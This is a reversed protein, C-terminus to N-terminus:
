DNGAIEWLFRSPELEKNYYEKVEYIHLHERARTMAVYFMRREEEIEEPKVAKKYPTMGENAELIFVADFELGKASHMTTVAVGRRERKALKIHQEFKERYKHIGDFWERFTKYQKAMEELEDLPEFLDEVNLHRYAAYERLYDDYGIAKRIFHVAAFPKLGALIKLEYEMQNINDVAWEKGAFAERLGEFRIVPETLLERTLYRNPKNLIRLFLARDRIGMAAQVYDLVHKVTFHDYVCPMKDQLRFPVNYEMLRNVIGRAQVNTRVIVAMQEYEMGCGHYEMIQGLVHSNEEALTKMHHIHVPEEYDRASVINKDFRTRNHSILLVAAKTINRSCRYNVDFVTTKADKYDDKFHLMIEPRAGRFGYISQDDDGVIFLNNEPLALMKTIEYQIKNIDQFEDVLIYQYRKQLKQLIDSREKLLEYCYVMMDDFDLKGMSTVAREYERYVERFVEEGLCGSYFNELSIMDGKMTGIEQIVSQILEEEDECECEKKRLIDRLLHYKEEEKLIDAPKYGYAAKLIHFFVSHFTGFTCGCAQEKMIGLFREEMEKASARTFTIVLIRLPNVHANEILYKIRYVMATTKGAGPGALAIMPGNVHRIAKQQGENFRQMKKVQSDIQRKWNGSASKSVACRSKKVLFTWFSM